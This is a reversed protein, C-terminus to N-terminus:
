SQKSEILEEIAEVSNFNEPTLDDVGLEVDFAEMLETVVAVIDLSDILGDDILATETEFDIGPCIESLIEIIQKKM